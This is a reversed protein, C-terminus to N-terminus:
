KILQRSNNANFFLWDIARGVNNVLRMKGDLAPDIDIMSFMQGEIAQEDQGSLNIISSKRRYGKEDTRREVDRDHSLVHVDKEAM